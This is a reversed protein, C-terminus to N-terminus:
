APSASNPASLWLDHRIKLLKFHTKLAASRCSRRKAGSPDHPVAASWVSAMGVEGVADFPVGLECNPQSTQVSGNRGPPRRGFRAGSPLV